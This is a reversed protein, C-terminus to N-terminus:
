SKILPDINFFSRSTVLILSSNLLSAIDIKLKKLSFKNLSFDFQINFNFEYEKNNASILLSSIIIKYINNIKDLLTIPNFKIWGKM